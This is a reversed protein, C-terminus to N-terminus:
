LRIITIRNGRILNAMDLKYNTLGANALFTQATCEYLLL